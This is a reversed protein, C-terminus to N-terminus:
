LCVAGLSHLSAYRAYLIGLMWFTIWTGPDLFLRWPIPDVFCHRIVRKELRMERLRDRMGCRPFSQRSQDLSAGGTSLSQSFDVNLESYQPLSTFSLHLLIAKNWVMPTALRKAARHRLSYIILTFLQFMM